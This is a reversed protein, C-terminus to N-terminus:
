RQLDANEQRFGMSSLPMFFSLLLNIKKERKKHRKWLEDLIFAVIIVVVLVILTVTFSFHERVSVMLLAGLAGFVFSMLLKVTFNM